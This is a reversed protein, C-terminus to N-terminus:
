TENEEMEIAKNILKVATVAADRAMAVKWAAQAAQGPEESARMRAYYAAEETRETTMRKWEAGFGHKEAYPQYQELATWMENMPDTHSNM